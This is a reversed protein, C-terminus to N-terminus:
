GKVKGADGDAASAQGTGHCAPCERKKAMPGTHTSRPAIPPGPVKRMEAYEAADWGNGGCAACPEGQNAPKDEQTDQAPYLSAYSAIEVSINRGDLLGREGHKDVLKNWCQMALSAIFNLPGCNFSDVAAGTESLSVEVRYPLAGNSTAGEPRPPYWGDRQEPKGFHQMIEGAMIEDMPNHDHQPM